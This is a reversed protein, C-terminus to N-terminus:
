AAKAIAERAPGTWDEPYVKRGLGQKMALDNVMDCLQLIYRESKKLAKAMEPAACLLTAIQENRCHAVFGLGHPGDVIHWDNSGGVRPSPSVKWDKM